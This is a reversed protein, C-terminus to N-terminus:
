PTCRGCRDRCFGNAPCAGGPCHNNNLCPDGDNDGGICTKICTSNAGLGPLASAKCVADSGNVCVLAECTALSPCPCPGSHKYAILKFADVVQVIDSGSVDGNLEPLNPQLLTIAKSPAGPVNKFKDVVKVVDSGDPQVADITPPNFPAVVDGYRRTLMEVPASVNTCNDELGKCSAAYARVTYTSSPLIEAGVVTIPGSATASVWDHYYPTCQLRAAQYTGLGPLNQSERYTNPEGVWRACGNEENAHTCGVL